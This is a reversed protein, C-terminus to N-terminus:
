GQGIARPLPLLLAPNFGSTPASVWRRARGRGLARVAGREALATLGRQVTRRSAGLALALASSSWAQGDALLAALAAAQGDADGAAAPPALVAVGARTRPALAFGAPTAHVSALARVARRLRGVEVRLRGRLSPTARAAGFARRVLVERPADGPWAEALARLLAFLVPRRALDVAAGGRGATRRCGDVVLRDSRRLAEVEGLRLPREAGASLLRAAPSALAEGARAVEAVLAPIGARDAARRARAHAEAAAASRGSRLAVDLAALGAVAALAPPAGRLALRDLARGAEAVRGGLLLRRVALLRAHLANTRDGGAELARAADELDIAPADPGRAALAVEAEATACRARAIPAAPGFARAARRLLRRAAGLDGLQAMAIGRLALGTADRRLAVERLAGLPDGAQLARAAAAPPTAPM